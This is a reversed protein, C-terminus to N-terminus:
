REVEINDAVCCDVCVLDKEASFTEVSYGLHHAYLNVEFLEGTEYEEECIACPKLKDM